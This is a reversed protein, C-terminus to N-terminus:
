SASDEDIMTKVIKKNIRKVFGPGEYIFGTWVEVLTAGAAFKQETHAATFIGGSGIIPIRGGSKQHMYAVVNTSAELLPLGSLGGAGIEELEKKSTQLGERSITAADEAAM